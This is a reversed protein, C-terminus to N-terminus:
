VELKEEKSVYENISKILKPLVMPALKSVPKYLYSAEKKEEDLFSLKNEFSNIFLLIVSAIFGMKLIGFLCGALKNLLGLAAMNAAKTIIKAVSSVLFVIGIFTIAFAAINISHENWNTYTTIFTALYHSFYIAGVIGLFLGILSALQVFFGKRFGQVLGILLFIGLVIDISNM